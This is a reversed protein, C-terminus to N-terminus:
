FTKFYNNVFETGKDTRLYIPKRGEQFVNKFANIISTKTKNKIARTWAYKSFVDVITLIYRHGSNKSSFEQMDVLDAEWQRDIHEAIIPNRKFIKRIPKHLTYTFEGSLWDKVNKFTINKDQKKAENYINRISTFSAPSKVNYFISKLLSEQNENQNHSMKLIIM